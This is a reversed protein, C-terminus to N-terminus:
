LSLCHTETPLDKPVPLAKVYRQPIGDYPGRGLFKAFRNIVGFKEQDQGDVIVDLVSARKDLRILPVM